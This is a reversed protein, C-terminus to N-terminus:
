SRSTAGEVIRDEESNMTQYLSSTNRMSDIATQVRYSKLSSAVMSFDEVRAMQELEFRGVKMQGKLEIVDGTANVRGLGVADVWPM